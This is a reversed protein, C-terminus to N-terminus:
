LKSPSQGRREHREIKQGGITDRQHPLRIPLPSLSEGLELEAVSVPQCGRIVDAVACTQQLL